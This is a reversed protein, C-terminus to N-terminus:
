SPISDFPQIAGNEGAGGHLGIFVVDSELIRPAGLWEFRREPSLTPVSRPPGEGIFAEAPEGQMDLPVAPDLPCVEHGLDRLAKIICKGSALSVEREASDGGLLVAVKM